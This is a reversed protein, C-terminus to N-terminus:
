WVKNYDYCHNKKAVSGPSEGVLKGRFNLRLTLCDSWVEFRKPFARKRRTPEVISFDYIYAFILILPMGFSFSREIDRFGGLHVISIKLSM